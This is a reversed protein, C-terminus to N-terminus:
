QTGVPTKAGLTRM